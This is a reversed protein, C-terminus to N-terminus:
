RLHAISGVLSRARGAVEEPDDHGTLWGGVGVAVAGAELFAAANDDAIGGTPIIPIHALPGRVARLYSPGGFSAPFLKVASAGADWAATVESPTLAGPVMPISQAVSAVLSPNFSPSVLFQAGAAHAAGAQEVTLVTGAGVEYGTAALWRISELAEAGDLTVEMVGIGADRLIPAIQRVRATGLRRMVAIIRQRGIAAPLPKRDTM